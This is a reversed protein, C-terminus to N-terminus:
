HKNPLWCEAICGNTDSRNVLRLTGQHAEAIQRCLFLGIGNGHPKTTYFPVFLNDSSPLGVGNDIIEIRVGHDFAQWGISVPENTASAEVANKMLNILLQQLQDPDAQLVLDTSNTLIFTGEVLDTMASFVNRLNVPKKQPEPLKALRTYSDTFRLLSSSREHILNLAKHYQTHWQENKDDNLRTVLTESVSILSALSNNLEHGLVRILRTWATREEERLARSLDNILVLSYSVGHQVFRNKRLEWRGGRSPFWHEFVSGSPQNLVTGMQLQSSSLGVLSSRSTLFLAEGKENCNQLVDQHDFIFVPIDFEALLKNLLIDSELDDLRKNQHQQALLNIERYVDSWASSDTQAAVRLSFDGVRLSEIVNALSHFHRTLTNKVHFAILLWLGILLPMVTLAVM